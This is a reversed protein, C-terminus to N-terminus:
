LRNVQYKIYRMFARSSWRGMRQITDEPIGLAAASTAAGVRFSHPTIGRARLGALESIKSLAVRFWLMSYPSGSSDIFLCGPSTGRIVLFAQVAAVPCLPSQHAPIFVYPSRGQSFKFSTFSVRIYSGQIIIDGLSLAHRSGCIEGARLFAHFALLFLRYPAATM